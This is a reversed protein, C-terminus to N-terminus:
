LENRILDEFTERRLILTDQGDCLRVMAPRPIRNYNSAMAYNYAGTTLVALVDGRKPEPLLVGEQILDGSECCRGAITCVTDATQQPRNALLVTYPSQYLAYRPNDPMGGDVSVYTRFGPITKLAGVTYLTMGADAVISRGPEMRMRPLDLQKERALDKIVAAIQAINKAYDVNPHEELYRVGMGGGLNLEKATYGLRDRMSAIFSMMIEAADTFPTTEFIQSGIHCHYGELSVHPQKLALAILTEAQGTEIAVGFKSDVNGTSIAKHTHPDIGPTVRILIKQIIGRAEAECEISLLEEENDCVFYGVGREMAYSIDADTKNNGHFYAREMPFGGADATYIEGSSVVDIGMGEERMIRYIDKICLAKGAYLPLADSGFAQKMASMYTRCHERIKNEDLLYLPTGYKQALETVDRGGFCLHGAQNISLNDCIM